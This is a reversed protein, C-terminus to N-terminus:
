KHKYITWTNKINVHQKKCFKADVSTPATVQLKTFLDTNLRSCNVREKINLIVESISSNVPLFVEMLSPFKVICQGLLRSKIYVSVDFKSRDGFWGLMINEVRAFEAWFSKSVIVEDRPTKLQYLFYEVDDRVGNKNADNGLLKSNKDIIILKEKLSTVKKNPMLYIYSVLLLLTLLRTKRKIRFDFVFFM